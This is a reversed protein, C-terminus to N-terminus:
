EESLDDFIMEIRFRQAYQHDPIMQIEKVQMQRQLVRELRNTRSEINENVNWEGLLQLKHPAERQWDISEVHWEPFEALTQNLKTLLVEYDPYAYKQRYRDIALLTQNTASLPKTSLHNLQDIHSTIQNFQHQFVCYENWIHSGSYIITLMIAALGYTARRSWYHWRYTHRWLNPMCNIKVRYIRSLLALSKMSPNICWQVHDLTPLAQLDIANDLALCHVNLSQGVALCKQGVLYRYTKKVEEGLTVMDDPLDTARSLRLGVEDMFYLHMGHYFFIWLGKGLRKQQSMRSFLSAAPIIEKCILKAAQLHILLSDFVESPQAIGCFRHQLANVRGQIEGAIYPTEPFHGQLKRRLIAKKDWPRMSPLVDWVLREGRLGSLISVESSAPLLFDTENLKDWTFTQINSWRFHRRLWIVGGMDDVWILAQAM